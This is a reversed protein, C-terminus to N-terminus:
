GPPTAAHADHNMGAITDKMGAMAEADNFLVLNEDLTDPREEDRTIAVARFTNGELHIM